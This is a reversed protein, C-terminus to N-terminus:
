RRPGKRGRGRPKKRAPKKRGPAAAAPRAKAKRGPALPPSPAKMVQLAAMAAGRRGSLERLRARASPVTWSIGRPRAARHQEKEVQVRSMLLVEDVGDIETLRVVIEQDRRVSFTRGCFDPQIPLERAGRDILVALRIAAPRGLDTLADMAARITRGTFLVDDVLVVQREGVNFPLETRRVVPHDAALSLDDRYLNIDLIGVPPAAEGARAIKAALRHALPAGRTHIGVLALSGTGGTSELVQHAIRSLARDIEAANMLVTRNKM